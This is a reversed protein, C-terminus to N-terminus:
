VRQLRVPRLDHVQQFASGSLVVLVFSRTPLATWPFSPLECSCLLSVDPGLIAALAVVWEALLRPDFQM